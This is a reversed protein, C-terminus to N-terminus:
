RRMDRHQVQVRAGARHRGGTCGVAVTFYSRGERRYLPLGFALLAEIHQLFARTEDHDLVYAAVAADCGTKGRLEDVFFPNPLFRADLMMDVDTPVGFKYGFSVLLVTLTDTHEGGRFLRQLEGRLEHVTLASTDLIRNARERLEVLEARERQNGAGWRIRGAPRASAGCWCTTAPTSFCCTSRTVPAACSM